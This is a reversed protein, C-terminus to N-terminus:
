IFVRVKPTKSSCFLEQELLGLPKFFVDHVRGHLHVQVGGSHQAGQTEAAVQHEVLADGKAL